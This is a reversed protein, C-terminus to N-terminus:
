SGPGSNDDDEDMDDGSGPGSNDDHTVEVEDEDELEQPGACAPDAAHEAEDCNGKLEDGAEFERTDAAGIEDELEQPGACAPDAAHEAEDCNGKLEDGDNGPSADDGPTESAVPSMELRATPTGQSSLAAAIGGLSFVTVLLLTATKRTKGM